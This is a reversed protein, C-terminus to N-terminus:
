TAKTWFAAHPRYSLFHRFCGSDPVSRTVSSGGKSDQDAVDEIEAMTTAVSPVYGRHLGRRLTRLMRTFQPSGIRNSRRSLNIIFKFTIPQEVPLYHDQIRHM